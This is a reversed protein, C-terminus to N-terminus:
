PLCYDVKLKNKQNTENSFLQQVVGAPDTGRLLFGENPLENAHMARVATAVNWEAKQAIGVSTVDSPTPDFDGGAVSWEGNGSGSSTVAARWTAESESWSRTVVHCAIPAPPASAAVVAVVRAGVVDAGAPLSAIDWHLLARAESGPAGGIRLFPASGHPTDVDMEDIWTDRATTNEFDLSLTALTPCTPACSPEAADVVADCDNDHTDECFPSEFPGELQDVNCLAGCGSPDDHCDNGGCAEDVYSDGDSDKDAEGALCHYAVCTEHTTCPDGDDCQTDSTCEAGVIEIAGALRATRGHPDLLSLDYFGAPLWTPVRAHLESESTWTVSALAQATTLGHVRLEFGSDVQSEGDFNAHVRPAFHRGLVRVDTAETQPVVGPSVQLIEPFRAGSSACGASFLIALTLRRM